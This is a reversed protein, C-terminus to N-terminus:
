RAPRALAGRLEQIAAAADEARMVGGMVAIGHAGARLCLPVTKAEIGGLGIVPVPSAAVFAALGEAGLAPGYGPKSATLFVPSASIYDVLAPDTAAADQPRHVSIGVLTGPGLLERAAAPDGGDPLHAGDAGAALALAPAGHLTLRAGFPRTVERLRAFLALQETEPLDKERLSVWRCGGACARAVVDALAGRAQARDTILLLPPVPLPLASRAPM